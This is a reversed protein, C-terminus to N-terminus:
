DTITGIFEDRTRILSAYMESYDMRTRARLPEIFGAIEDQLPTLALNSLVGKIAHAYEFAQDLDGADLTRGPEEFNSDNLCKDVMKLYFEENDLCRALGEDVRVGMARLDDLTMM